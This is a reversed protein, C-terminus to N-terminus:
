FDHKVLVKLARRFKLRIDKHGDAVIANDLRQNVGEEALGFLACKYNGVALVNQLAINEDVGLGALEAVDVVDAMHGTFVNVDDMVVRFILAFSVRREFFILDKGGIM